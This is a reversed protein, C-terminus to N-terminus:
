NLRAWFPEQETKLFFTQDFRNYLVAHYHPFEVTLGEMTDLGFKGNRKCIVFGNDLDQVEEYKPYIGKSAKADYVGYKGKQKVLWNGHRTERIEEYGPRLVFNGKQTILGLQGRDEVLARGNKFPYVKEYRPQIAIEDHKNVYGWRQKIKFPALGESFYAVEDYRLQVRIRGLHDVFGWRGHLRAPAFQEAPKKIEELYTYADSPPVEDAYIDMFWWQEKKYMYVVSDQFASVSDFENPLTRYGKDNILGYRFGWSTNRRTEILGDERVQYDDYGLYLEVGEPNVTAWYGNDEVLFLRENIVQISDVVPRIVWEGKKNIVGYLSDMTVAAYGGKFDSAAKYRLAIAPIFQADYYGWYGRQKIRYMGDTFDGIYEVSPDSIRHGNTNYMVVKGEDTVVRLLGSPDKSIKPFAVPLIEKGSTNIVGLKRGKRVIAIGNKFDRIQDYKGKKVFFEGKQNVLGTQGNLRAEFVGKEINRLRDYYWSNLSDGQLNILTFRSYPKVQWDAKEEDWRIEKHIFDILTKGSKISLMGYWFQKKGVLTDGRLEVLETLRHPFLMEGQLNYVGWNGSEDKAALRHDTIKQIDYFAAPLVVEGEPTILGYRKREDRDLLVKHIGKAFFLQIDHFQPKIIYNGKLDIIGYLPLSRTPLSVKAMDQQFYSLSAYERPLHVKGKVDMMGWKDEEKFGIYKEYFNNEISDNDTWGIYQYFKETLMKGKANILAYGSATKVIAVKNTFPTAEEFKAEIVYASEGDYVYGFKGNDSQKPVLATQAQLLFPLM